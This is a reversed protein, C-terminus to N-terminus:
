GIIVEWGLKNFTAEQCFFYSIVYSKNKECWCLKAHPNVAKEIFFDTVSQNFHKMFFLPSGIVRHLRMECKMLLGILNKIVMHSM